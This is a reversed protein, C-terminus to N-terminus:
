PRRPLAPGCERGVSAFKAFKDRITGIDGRDAFRGHCAGSSSRMRTDPSNGVQRAFRCAAVSRRSPATRRPSGEGVGLIGVARDGRRRRVKQARVRPLRGRYDADPIGPATPALAPYRPGSLAYADGHLTTFALTGGSDGPGTRDGALLGPATCGGALRAPQPPYSPPFSHADYSGSSRGVWVRVPVYVGLEM